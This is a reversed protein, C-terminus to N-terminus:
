QNIIFPTIFSVLSCGSQFQAPGQPAKRPVSQGGWQM